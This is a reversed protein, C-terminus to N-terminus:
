RASDSGEASSIRLLANRVRKIFQARELKTTVKIREFASDLKVDVYYDGDDAHFHVFARSGQSFSGRNRERLEPMSRLADLLDELHDLDEDTAHRM